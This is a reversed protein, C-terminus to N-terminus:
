KKETKVLSGSEDFMPETEIVLSFFKKGKADTIQLISKIESEKYNNDIYTKIKEPLYQIHIPKEIRIVHGATDIIASAMAKYGQTTGKYNGKVREWKTPNEVSDYANPYIFVFADKVVQPVTVHKAKQSFAFQVCLLLSLLVLIKKM